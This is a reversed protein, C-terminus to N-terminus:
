LFMGTLKPWYTSGWINVIPDAHCKLCFNKQSIKKTEIGTIETKMCDGCLPEGCEECYAVPFNGCKCIEQTKRAALM